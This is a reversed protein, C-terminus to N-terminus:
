HYQIISRMFIETKTKLHMFTRLEKYFENRTIKTSILICDKLRLKFLDKASISLNKLTM